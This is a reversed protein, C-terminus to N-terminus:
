RTIAVRARAEAGNQRLRLFYIGPQLAGADSVELVRGGPAPSAVQRTALVRGAVDLLELRAPSDDRLVFEVALRGHTAPNPSVKRIALVHPGSERSGVDTTAGITLAGSVALVADAFETNVEDSGLSVVALRAQDTRIDPVMWALSGDDAPSRAVVSWTGGGDASLMLGVSRVHGGAPGEWSVTAASGSSIETGAAPALWRGRRVRVTDTGAFTTTGSKCTVIVPVEDGDPLTLELAARDFKVMLEKIGDGDHDVLATPASTDAAVTGNLRITAIEIDRAAFPPAPELYGTVWRGRSALNLTKPTLEIAIPTPTPDCGKGLAGIRGVGPVHLLPSDSRLRVDDASLDCFLPDLSLDTPSGLEGPSPFWDNHSIVLPDSYVSPPECAYVLNNSITSGPLYSMEIGPGSCAYITNGRVAITSPGLVTFFWYPNTLLIGEAGCRGIVNDEIASAGLGQDIVIGPGRCDLVLNGRVLGSGLIRIGFDGTDGTVTGCHAIRNRELYPHARQGSGVDIGWGRCGEIDNDEFRVDGEQLYAQFAAGGRVQNRAVLTHRGGVRLAYNPVNEFRNDFVFASDSPWITVPGYVTCSDLTAVSASVVTADAGPELTELGLVCRTIRLAAGGGNLGMDHRCGAVLVHGSSLVTVLGTFHLGIFASGDNVGDAYFEGIEPMRDSGDLAAIAQIVLRRDRVFVREPYSGGRVLLTEVPARVPMNNVAAQITPFDDPVITTRARAPVTAALLLWIALFYTRVRSRGAPRRLHVPSGGTPSAARALAHPHPRAM